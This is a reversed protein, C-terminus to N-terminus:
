GFLDGGCDVAEIRKGFLPADALRVQEDDRAAATPTPARKDAAFDILTM